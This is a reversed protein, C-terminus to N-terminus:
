RLRLALLALVPPLAFCWMHLDSYLLAAAACGGAFALINLSMGALRARVPALDAGGRLVDVLDIVAQTTNSTM